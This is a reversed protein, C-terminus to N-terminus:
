VYDGHNVPLGAFSYRAFEEFSFLHKAASNMFWIYGHMSSEVLYQWAYLLSFLLNGRTPWCIGLCLVACGSIDM